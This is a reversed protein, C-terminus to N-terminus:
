RAGSNTESSLLRPQPKTDPETKVDTDSEGSETSEEDSNNWDEDQTCFLFMVLWIKFIALSKKVNIKLVHLSM